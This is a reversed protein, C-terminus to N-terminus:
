QVVAELEKDNTNIRTAIRYLCTDICILDQELASKKLKIGDNKDRFYYGSPELNPNDQFSAM